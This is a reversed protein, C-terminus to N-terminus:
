VKLEDKMLNVFCRFRGDLGCPHWTTERVSATGIAIPAPIIGASRFVRIPRLGCRGMFGAETRGRAM